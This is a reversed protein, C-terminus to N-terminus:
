DSINCILEEDGTLSALAPLGALGIAHWARCKGCLSFRERIHFAQLLVAIPHFAQQAEDRITAVLKYGERGVLLPAIDRGIRDEVARMGALASRNWGCSFAHCRIVNIDHLEVAVLDPM